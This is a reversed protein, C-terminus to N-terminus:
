GLRIACVTAYPSTTVALRGPVVREMARATRAGKLAYFIQPPEDLSLVACYGVLVRTVPPDNKVAGM